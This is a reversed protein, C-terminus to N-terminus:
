DFLNNTKLINVENIIDTIVEDVSKNLPKIHIDAEKYVGIRKDYLEQLQSSENKSILPREQNGKARNIITDIPTDIFITIGINKLIKMNDFFIPMGGGTSIVASSISEISCLLKKEQERFYMEGKDKFINIITNKLKKEIMSDTDIYKYHIKNSLAKGITSKGSFPM